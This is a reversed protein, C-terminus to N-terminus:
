KLVKVPGKERKNSSEYEEFTMDGDQINPAIYKDHCLIVSENQSVIRKGFYITPSQNSREGTIQFEKGDIYLLIKTLDFFRFGMVNEKFTVKTLDRKQVKTYVSTVSHKQDMVITELYSEIITNATLVSNERVESELIIEIMEDTTYTKNENVVKM